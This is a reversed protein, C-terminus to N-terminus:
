EPGKGGAIVDQVVFVPQGNVLGAPDATYTLTFVEDSPVFSAEVTCNETIPATTFLKGDLSGGCGDVSGIAFHPSPLVEFQVLEGQNVAQKAPPMLKGG